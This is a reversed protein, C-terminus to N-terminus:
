TGFRSIKEMVSDLDSTDVDCHQAAGSLLYEDKFKMLADVLRKTRDQKFMEREESSMRLLKVVIKTTQTTDEPDPVEIICYDHHHKLANNVKYRINRIQAEEAKPQLEFPIRRIAFDQIDRLSIRDQAKFKTILIADEFWEGFTEEAQAYLPNKNKRM